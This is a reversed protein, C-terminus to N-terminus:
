QGQPSLSGFGPFDLCEESNDIVNVPRHTHPAPTVCSTAMLTRLAPKCVAELGKMVDEVGKESDATMVNEIDAQALELEDGNRDSKLKVANTTVALCLAFRFLKM